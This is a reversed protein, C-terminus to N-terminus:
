LRSFISSLNPREFRGPMPSGDKLGIKESRTKAQIMGHTEFQLFREGSKPSIGMYAYHEVLGTYEKWSKAMCMPCIISQISGAIDEIKVIMDWFNFIMNIGFSTLHIFDRLYKRIYISADGWEKQRPLPLGKQKAARLVFYKEAESVNDFLVFKPKLKILIPILEDFVTSYSAVSTDLVPFITCCLKEERKLVSVGADISIVFIDEPKCYPQNHGNWGSEYTWGLLTKILSTKGVGAPGYIIMSTGTAKLSQGPLLFSNKLNTM